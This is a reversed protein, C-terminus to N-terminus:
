RRLYSISWFLNNQKFTSPPKSKQAISTQLSPNQLHSMLLQRPSHISSVWFFSPWIICCPRGQERTRYEAKETKERQKGRCSKYSTYKSVWLRELLPLPKDGHRSDLTPINTDGKKGRYTFASAQNYCQTQIWLSPFLTLTSGHLPAKSQQSPLLCKLPRLYCQVPGFNVKPFEARSWATDEQRCWM